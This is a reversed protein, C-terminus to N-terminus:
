FANVKEVSCGLNAPCASNSYDSCFPKVPTGSCQVWSCGWPRTATSTGVPSYTTNCTLADQLTSCVDVCGGSSWQCKPAGCTAETKFTACSPDNEYVICAPGATCGPVSSCTDTFNYCLIATGTCVYSPGCATVSMMALVCLGTLLHRSIGRPVVV